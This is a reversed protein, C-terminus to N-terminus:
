AIPVFNTKNLFRQVEKELAAAADSIAFRKDRLTKPQWTQPQAFEPRNTIKRLLTNTAHLTIQLM